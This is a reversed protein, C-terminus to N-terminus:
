AVLRVKSGEDDKMVLIQAPFAEKLEDKTEGRSNVIGSNQIGDHSYILEVIKWNAREEEWQMTVVAPENSPTTASLELMQKKHSTLLSNTPVRAELNAKTQQELILNPNEPKDTDRPIVDEAVNSANELDGAPKAKVVLHTPHITDPVKPM